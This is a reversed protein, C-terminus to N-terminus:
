GTSLQTVLAEVASAVEPPVPREGELAAIADAPVGAANAAEAVDLEAHHRARYLRQGLTASPSEAARLMLETYRRRVASLALVLKTAGTSSRANSEALSELRRLDALVASIKPIFEPDAAGPLGEIAEIITHMAADVAETMLPVRASSGMVETPERDSPAQPVRGSPTSAGPPPQPAAHDVAGGVIDNLNAILTGELPESPVLQVPIGQAHGLSVTVPGTILMSGRRVGDVFVGNSSTDVAQWGDGHPELRLHARSIRDDRIRITARPDRGIVVAGDVPNLVHRESGIQVVLTPAADAAPRDVM